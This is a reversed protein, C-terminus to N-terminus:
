EFHNQLEEMSIGGCLTQRLWDIHNGINCFRRDRVKMKVKDTTQSRMLEQRKLYSIPDAQNRLIHLSVSGM